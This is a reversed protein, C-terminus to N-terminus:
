AKVVRRRPRANRRQRAPGRHRRGQLGDGDVACADLIHFANPKKRLEGVRKVRQQTEGMMDSTIAHRLAAAPLRLRRLRAPLADVGRDDAHLHRVARRRDDPRTELKVASGYQDRLNGRQDKTVFSPDVGVPVKANFFYGRTVDLLHQPAGQDDEMAQVIPFGLGTSDIGFGKLEGGYAHGIATWAEVIQRTRFREM